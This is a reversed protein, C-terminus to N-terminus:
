ENGDLHKEITDLLAAFDYPKAQLDDCGASFIRERQHFMNHATLAIVPIGSTSANAKIERTAELGAENDLTDNEKSEPMQLDMLILDPSESASKAVADARNNAIALEYGEDSLLDTLIEVNNADDEAILIKAM